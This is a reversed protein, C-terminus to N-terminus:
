LNRPALICSTSAISLLHHENPWSSRRAISSATTGTCVVAHVHLVRLATINCRAAAAAVYEIKTPISWLYLGFSISLMTRAVVFAHNMTTSWNASFTQCRAGPTTCVPALANEPNHQSLYAPCLGVDLDDIGSWPPYCGWGKLMPEEALLLFAYMSVAVINILIIAVNTVRVDRIMWGPLDVCFNVISIQFVAPHHSVVAFPPRAPPSRRVHAAIYATANIISDEVRNNAAINHALHYLHVLYQLAHILFAVLLFQGSNWETASEVVDHVVETESPTTSAIKTLILSFATMRFVSGILFLILQFWAFRDYLRESSEALFARRATRDNVVNFWRKFRATIGPGPEPDMDYSPPSILFIPLGLIFFVESTYITMLWHVSHKIAAFQARTHVM